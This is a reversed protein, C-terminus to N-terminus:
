NAVFQVVRLATGTSDKNRRGTLRMRLTHRGPALDTAFMVTRPYHLGKSFQHYLDTERAPGDDVSTEVVGADPGALLYAGVARGEFELTLEAGPETASLLPLERFRERCQGPLRKWDPVGLTAGRVVVAQKTETMIPFASFLLMLLLVAVVGTIIPRQRLVDIM